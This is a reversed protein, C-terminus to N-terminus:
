TSSNPQGPPLSADSGNNEGDSDAYPGYTAALLAELSTDLLIANITGFLLATNLLGDILPSISGDEAILANVQDAFEPESGDAAVWASLAQFGRPNADRQARVARAATRSRTQETPDKFLSARPVEGTRVRDLRLLNEFSFVSPKIRRAVGDVITMEILAHADAEGGPALRTALSALPEISDLVYDLDIETVARIVDKLGSMAETALELVDLSDSQAELRGKVSAWGDFSNLLQDRDLTWRVTPAADPDEPRADASLSMPPIGCHVCYNRLKYMFAYGFKSDFAAATVQGFRDAADSNQGYVRKIRTEAHDLYLRNAALFNVLAALLPRVMTHQRNGSPFHRGLRAATQVYHFTETLRSYNRGVFDTAFDSELRAMAGLARQGLEWEEDTLVTEIRMSGRMQEQPSNTVFGLGRVVTPPSPM